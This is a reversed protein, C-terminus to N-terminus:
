ENLLVRIREVDDIREAPILKESELKEFDGLFGEKLEDKFQRYIPQAEDYRGQFLLALALSEHIFTQSSDISLGERAYAEAESYKGVLISTFSLGGLAGAYQKKNDENPFREFLQKVIAMGDKSLAESKEYYGMDSYLKGLNFIVGALEISYLKPNNIALKQYIELSEKYAMESASYNKALYYLYGQSNLVMALGEKTSYEEFDKSSLGRLIRLTEDNVSESEAYKGVNYYFNGLGTLVKALDLSYTAPYKESLKRYIDLSEKYIGEAEMYEGKVYVYLNGLNMLVQALNGLYKDPNDSALMRYIELSEKYAAESDAVNGLLSLVNGMSMLAMALDPSYVNSNKAELERYIELSEELMKKSEDYKGIYLYLSGLNNLVMALDMSHAESNDDALQRYIELSEKYAIKCEAIRGTNHYLMGLNNLAMALEESYIKTNAGILNRLIEVSEMLVIEGDKFRKDRLYLTSLNNLVRAVELSYIFPEKVALKRYIELSEKFRKESVEAYSYGKSLYFTGFNMLLLAFNPLYKNSDLEILQDFIAVSEKYLKESDLYMNNIEYILALNGLVASRKYLYEESEKDDTNNEIINLIRKWYIEAESYNKQTHYFGACDSIYELTNMEEALDKILNGAKQWDNAMKYAGIQAQLSNLHLKMNSKANEVDESNTINSQKGQEVIQLDQRLKALYDGSEFLKISEEIDGQNFLEVARQAITDIEGEDIRAFSKVNEAENAFAIQRETERESLLKRYEGIKIISDELQKKLKAIEKTYKKEARERYIAELRAEQRAQEEADRMILVLPEKRVSWEDVAQQNFIIMGKKTVKVDGIRSGMRLNNLQLTFTGNSNDSLVGNSATVAKVYVEGLPTRPNKGNYRYAVGKQSITQASAVVALLVAVM